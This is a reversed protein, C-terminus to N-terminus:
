WWCFDPNWREIPSLTVRESGRLEALAFEQRNISDGWVLFTTHLAPLAALLTRLVPLSPYEWVGNPRLTLQTLSPVASPLLASLAETQEVGLVHLTHLYRMAAFAPLYERPHRSIVSGLSLEQLRAVFPSSFFQRISLEPMGVVCNIHLRLLHSAHTQLSQFVAISFGSEGTLALEVFHERISLQQLADTLAKLQAEETQHIICCGFTTLRPLLAIRRM